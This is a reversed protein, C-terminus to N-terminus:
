VVRRYAIVAIPVFVAMLGATWTLALVSAGAVTHGAPLAAPGLTLGRLADAVATIPQHEAFARLWGPMTGTPLFVSSTLTLPFVVLYIAAQIAEVHTILLGVCAMVWSCAYGFLLAIGVAALLGGFGHQWRFGLVIGTGLQLVLVFTNRVLDALTRGALVSPRAMPLARFRDLMGNIRDSNLGYATPASGFVASQALIGPVLWYIYEGRAAAPLAAQIAGGFVYLFMLMFVIPQITSLVLVDRLRVNALLNRRMIVGTHTLMAATM